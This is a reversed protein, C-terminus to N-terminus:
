LSIETGEMYPSCHYTVLDLEFGMRSDNGDMKQQLIKQGM